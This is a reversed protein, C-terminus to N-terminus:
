KVNQNRIGDVLVNQSINSPRVEMAERGKSSSWAKTKIGINKDVTVEQLPYSSLVESVKNPMFFDVLFSDRYIYTSSSNDSEDIRARKNGFSSTEEGRCEEVNNIYLKDHKILEDGSCSLGAVNPSIPESISCDPTRQKSLSSQHADQDSTEEKDVRDHYRDIEVNEKNHQLDKTKFDEDEDCRKDAMSGIKMDEDSSEKLLRKVISKKKMKAQPRGSINRSKINEPTVDTMEFLKGHYFAFHRILSIKDRSPPNTCESSSQPGHAPM